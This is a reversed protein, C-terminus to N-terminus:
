SVNKDYKALPLYQWKLNDEDLAGAYHKDVSWWGAKDEFPYFYKSTVFVERKGDIDILVLDSVEPEENNTDEGDPQPKVDNSFWGFDEPTSVPVKNDPWYILERAPKAVCSELVADTGREKFWRTATVEAAKRGEEENLFKDFKITILEYDSYWHGGTTFEYNVLFLRKKM